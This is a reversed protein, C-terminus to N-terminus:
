PMEIDWHTYPIMLYPSFVVEGSKGDRLGDKKGYPKRLDGSFDNGFGSRGPLSHTPLWSEYVVRTQRLVTFSTIFAMMVKFLDYSHLYHHFTEVRTGRYIMKCLVMPLNQQGVCTM